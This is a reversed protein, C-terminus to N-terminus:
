GAHPKKSPFLNRLRHLKYLQDLSLYNSCPEFGCLDQEMILLLDVHLCGCVVYFICLTYM